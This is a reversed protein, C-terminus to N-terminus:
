SRVSSPCNESDGSSRAVRAATSRSSRTASPSARCRTRSRASRRRGAAASSRSRPRAAGAGAAPAGTGCRRARATRARPSGARGRSASRGASRPPSPRLRRQPDDDGALARVALPELPERRLHVAADLEGAADVVLPEGVEVRAAEGDVVRRDVLVEPHHRVLREEGRLRHHRRGVGAARELDDAVALGADDDRGLRGLERPRARVEGACPSSACAHPRAPFATASRTVHSPQM